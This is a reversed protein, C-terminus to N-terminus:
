IVINNKQLPKMEQSKEEDHISVQATKVYMQGDSLKTRSVVKGRCKKINNLDHFFIILIITIITFILNLIDLIQSQEVGEMLLSKNSTNNFWGEGITIKPIDPIYLGLGNEVDSMNVDM